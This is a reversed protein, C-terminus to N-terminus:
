RVQTILVDLIRGTKAGVSVVFVCHLGGAGGAVALGM